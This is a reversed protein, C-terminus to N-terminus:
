RGDKRRAGPQAISGGQSISCPFLVVEEGQDMGEIRDILKQAGYQGIEYRPTKITTINPITFNVYPIGDSGLISLDEPVRLGLHHAAQLVGLAIMDNIAYIATIGPNRTLLEIAKEKADYMDLESYIVNEDKYLDHKRLVRSFINYRYANMLSGKPAAVLGIERHGLEVLQGIAEAVLDDEKYTVVPIDYGELNRTLSVIHIGKNMMRYLEEVYSQESYLFMSVLIGDVEHTDLTKLCEIAKEVSLEANLIFVSYGRKRAVKEAATIIDISYSNSLQGIIMGLTYSRKTKLARATASPVYDISRAIQLVRDRTEESIGRKGNLAM